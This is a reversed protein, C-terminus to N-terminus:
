LESAEVFRYGVGWVTLVYEPSAPDKELKSRLRNINSDVTHHYGSIDYGWVFSLLQDRSYPRGPSKALFLLLDYQRPTLEIEVENRYVRRKVLDIKVEGVEVSKQELESESVSSRRLLARIRALLEEIKFPKTLYDDAGLELGLVKDLVEAKVSLILIPIQKNKERLKRCIENGDVGPLKLDTILLDFDQSLVLDLGKKGDLAHQISYGAETCHLQVLDAIDQNDEILLIKNATM